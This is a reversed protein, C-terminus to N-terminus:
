TTEPLDVLAEFERCVQLSEQRCRRSAQKMQDALLQREMRANFEEVARRVYASRTLALQRALERTRADQDPELQLHISPM